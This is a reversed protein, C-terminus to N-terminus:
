LVAGGLSFKVVRLDLDDFNDGQWFDGVLYLANGAVALAKGFDCNILYSHLAFRNGNRSRTRSWRFRSTLNPM